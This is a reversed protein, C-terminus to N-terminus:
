HRHIYIYVQIYMYLSIVRDICIYTYAYFIHIWMRCFKGGSLWYPRPDESPTRCLLQGVWRLWATFIVICESELSPPVPVMRTTRSDCMREEGYSGALTRVESLLM